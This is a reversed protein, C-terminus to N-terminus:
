HKKYSPYAKEEYSPNPRQPMIQDFVQLILPVRGGSRETYGRVLDAVHTRLAAIEADANAGNISEFFQRLDHGMAGVSPNRLAEPSFRGVAREAM